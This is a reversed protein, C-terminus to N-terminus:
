RSKLLHIPVKDQPTPVFQVTHSDLNFKGTVFFIWPGPGDSDNIEFRLKIISTETFFGLQPPGAVMNVTQPLGKSDIIVWSITEGQIKALAALKPYNQTELFVKDGWRGPPMQKFEKSDAANLVLASVIVSLLSHVRGM